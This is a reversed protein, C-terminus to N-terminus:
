QEAPPGYKIQKYLEYLNWATFIALIVAFMKEEIRFETAIGFLEDYLNNLSGIFVCGSLIRLLADPWYAVLLLCTIISISVSMLQMFHTWKPENYALLFSAFAVMLAAAKAYRNLKGREM